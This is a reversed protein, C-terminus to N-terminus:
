SRMKAAADDIMKFIDFQPQYGLETMAKNISTDYRYVTTHLKVEVVNLGTYKALHLVAEDFDFSELGGINFIGGVAKPHTLGLVIGQCLDRTDCIGMRFPNGDQDLSIYHQEQETAVHRMADITKVTAEAQPMNELQRIKANLYFRPGSVPGMPDFLEQATQTHSFRLICYPLNFQEGINCVMEEGLLKTMGYPSNPLKPHNEPIPLFQPNLEPYVEGSSAFVFRSLNLRKAIELLQFTGTVNVEFVRKIDKPHRAMSAALHVVADIGMMARELIDFDVMSGVIVDDPQADYPPPSTDFGRVWHGQRQLHKVLASGIRGSSGTILVKM